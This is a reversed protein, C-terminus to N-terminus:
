IPRLWGREGTKDLHARMCMGYKSFSRWEARLFLPNCLERPLEMARGKLEVVAYDLQLWGKGPSAYPDLIRGAIDVDLCVSVGSSPARFRYRTYRVWILPILPLPGQYGLHIVGVSQLERIATARVVGETLDRNTVRCAIRAKGTTGGQKAKHELYVLTEENPRVADYWRMRIKSKSYYGDLQDGYADLKITDFYVSNIRSVPYEPDPILVQRLWGLVRVAETPVLPFKRELRSAVFPRM